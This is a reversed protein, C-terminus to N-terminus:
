SSMLRRCPKSIANCRAVAVGRQWCDGCTVATCVDIELQHNWGMQFFILWSPLRGEIPTFVFFIEFWWGSKWGHEEIHGKWVMWFGKQLGWNSNFKNDSIKNHSSSTTKNFHAPFHLEHKSTWNEGTTWRYDAWRQTTSITCYNIATSLFRAFRHIM